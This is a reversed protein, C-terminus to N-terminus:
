QKVVKADTTYGTTKVKAKYCNETNKIKNEIEHAEHM